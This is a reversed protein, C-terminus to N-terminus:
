RVAPPARLLSAGFPLCCRCRTVGPRLVALLAFGATFFYAPQEVAPFFCFDDVTCLDAVRAAAGNDPVLDGAFAPFHAHDETYIHVKQGAHAAVMVSLLLCAYCKKLLTRMTM